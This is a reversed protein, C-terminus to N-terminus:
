IDSLDDYDDEVTNNDELTDRNISQKRRTDNNNIFQTDKSIHKFYPMFAIGNKRFYDYEYIKGSDDWIKIDEKKVVQKNSLIQFTASKMLEDKTEQDRFKIYRFNYSYVNVAKPYAKKITATDKRGGVVMHRHSVLGYNPVYWWNTETTGTYHYNASQYITGNFGHIGSGYAIIFKIDKRYKFIMKDCFSVFKSPQILRQDTNTNEYTIDKGGEKVVILRLNDVYQNRLEPRQFLTNATKGNSLNPGYTAIGRLRNNTYLGFRFLMVANGGKGTKHYTNIFHKTDKDSVPKIIEYPM